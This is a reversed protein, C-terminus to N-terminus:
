LYVEEIKLDKKKTTFKDIFVSLDMNKNKSLELLLNPYYIVLDNDSIDKDDIKSIHYDINIGRQNYEQIGIITDEIYKFSVTYDLIFKKNTSIPTYYYYKLNNAFLGIMKKIQDSSLEVESLIDITNILATVDELCTTFKSFIFLKYANM